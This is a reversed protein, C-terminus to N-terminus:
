RVLFSADHQLENDAYQSQEDDAGMRMGLRQFQFLHGIADVYMVANM